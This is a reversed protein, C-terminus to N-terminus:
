AAEQVPPELVADLGDSLTILALVSMLIALLPALFAWLNTEGGMLWDSFANYFLAGWLALVTPVLLVLFRFRLGM